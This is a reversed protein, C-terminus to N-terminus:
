RRGGGGRRGGGKKKDDNEERPPNLLKQLTKVKVRLKDVEQQAQDIKANFETRLKEATKSHAFFELNNKWLAIENELHAIRKRMVDVNRMAARMADGDSGGQAQLKLKFMEREEEPLAVAALYQELAKDIQEAISTMAKRPVFGIKQFEAYLTEVKGVDPDKAEALALIQECIAKKQALNQEQDGTQGTARNRKRDFFYDCAAKFREYIANSKAEPVPGVQRWEEQLKKLLATTAELDNSDKAAEAQECLAVKKQLNEERSKELQDFFKGKNAFFAKFNAWFQKNIDKAVERPAPGVKEWEKQIDLVTKTQTNWDAIRESTYEAFPEIKKCLEQKLHMNAEQEKRQGENAARKKDYLQDSAAKFRQWIAEQEAKPVPGINKYEEHLKNLTTIAENVNEANVLAEAKECLEIKATLNRRRDLEIMENEMKRHAYFRDLLATYNRYLEDGEPTNIPGLEKWHKQIEKVKDFTPRSTDDTDVLAKLQALLNQKEEAQKVKKKELEAFYKAKRDKLSKYNAFFKASIEDQQFEFGDEEGGNALYLLKADEREQKNFKDMEEKLARLANDVKRFNNEAFLTESITLLQIKTLQSYDLEEEPEEPHSEDQSVPSVEAEAVAISAVPEIVVEPAAPAIVVPESIESTPTEPIVTEPSSTEMVPADATEPTVTEPSPTEMVPPEAPADTTAPPVETEVPTPPM